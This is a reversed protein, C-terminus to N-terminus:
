NPYEADRVPWAGLELMTQVMEMRDSWTEKVFAAM